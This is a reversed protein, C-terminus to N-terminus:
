GSPLGSIAVAALVSRMDAPFFDKTSCDDRKCIDYCRHALLSMVTRKPRGFSQWLQCVMSIEKYSIDYIHNYDCDHTNTCSLKNAQVYLIRDSIPVHFRSHHEQNPVHHATKQESDLKEFM